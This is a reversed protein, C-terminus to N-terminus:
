VRMNVSVDISTIHNAVIWGVTQMVTLSSFDAEFNADDRICRKPVFTM